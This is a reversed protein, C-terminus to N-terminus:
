ARRILMLGYGFAKARGFGQLIAGVLADPETVEIVGRLDLVGFKAPREGRGRDLAVTDYGDVSLTEIAFGAGSARAELWARAASELISSRRLARESSPLGLLANMVVDAPKGRVGPAGGRSVTANVRLAFQLRDGQALTPAFAKPESLEFLRHSDVPPRASLILYHGPRVERWLFDRRRDPSDAFLTWLLHHSAHVREAGHSPVLARWLSGASANRRVRAQTLWRPDASM